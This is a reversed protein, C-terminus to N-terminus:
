KMSIARFDSINLRKNMGVVNPHRYDRRRRELMLSILIAIFYFRNSCNSYFAQFSIGLCSIFSFMIAVGPNRLQGYRLAGSARGKIEM